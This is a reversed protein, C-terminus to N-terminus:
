SSERAERPSFMSVAAVYTASDTSSISRLGPHMSRMKRSISWCPPTGDALLIVLIATCRQGHALDEIPTYMGDDPKRFRVTLVDPRDILQAALLDEWLNREDINALLRAVTAADIGKDDDVLENVDGGWLARAFRFPHTFKAIADVVEERARSGVKLRNLAERFETYDGESPVDLKVFGATKANLEDM